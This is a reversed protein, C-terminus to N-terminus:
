RRLRVLLGLIMTAYYGATYLIITKRDKPDTLKIVATALRDRDWLDVKNATALRKASETFYNNTVVMATTCGYYAKAAVVQQVAKNDVPKKYHKAQVVTRKGFKMLILDAGQDGSAPTVKAFWGLGMFLKELYLEFERGSLKDIEQMSLIRMSSLYFYGIILFMAITSAISIFLLHNTILEPLNKAIASILILAFCGYIFKPNDLIKSIPGRRRRPM